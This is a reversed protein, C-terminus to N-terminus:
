LYEIIVGVRGISVEDDEGSQVPVSRIHQAPQNDNNKSSGEVVAASFSAPSDREGSQELSVEVYSYYICDVM